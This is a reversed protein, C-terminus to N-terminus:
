VGRDDGVLVLLLGLLAATALIWALQYWYFFPMGFLAPSARNYLPPVLTGAFPLILLLYWRRRM